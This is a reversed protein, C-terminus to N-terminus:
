TTCIQVGMPDSLPDLHLLRVLRRRYALKTRELLQGRLLEVFGAAVSVHEAHRRVVLDNPAQDPNLGLLRSPARLHMFWVYRRRDTLKARKALERLLVEVLVSMLRVHVGVRVGRTGM